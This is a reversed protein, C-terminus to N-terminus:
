KQRSSYNMISLDERSNKNPFDVVVAFTTSSAGPSFSTGYLIDIFIISIPIAM